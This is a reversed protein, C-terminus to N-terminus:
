IKEWYSFNFEITFEILSSNDDSFSIDSMSKPYVDYLEYTATPYGTVSSLQSLKVSTMYSPNDTSIRKDNKVSDIFEMWNNFKTRLSHKEDDLFTVSWTSDYQADGAVTILRGQYWVQIDNFSRGPITTSKALTNIEEGDPGGSPSSLIIKYKNSRAGMGLTKKLDDLKGM